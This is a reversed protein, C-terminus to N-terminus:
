QIHYIHTVMESKKEGMERQKDVHFFRLHVCFVCQPMPSAKLKLRTKFLNVRGNTLLSFFPSWNRPTLSLSPRGSVSGIKSALIGPIRHYKKKEEPM